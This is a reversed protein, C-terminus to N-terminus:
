IGETQEAWWEKICEATIGIGMVANGDNAEPEAEAGFHVGLVRGDADLLPAGDTAQLSLAENDFQYSLMGNPSVDTVTARHSVQSAPAGRYVAAAMWIVDGAHCAHESWDLPRLRKSRSGGAVVLLNNLLNGTAGSEQGHYPQEELTGCRGRWAGTHIVDGYSRMETDAGFAESFSVYQISERYTSSAEAEIFPSAIKMTPHLAALLVPDSQGPIRTAFATSVMADPDLSAGRPVIYPRWISFDAVPPGDYEAGGVRSDASRDEREGQRAPQCGPVCGLALM